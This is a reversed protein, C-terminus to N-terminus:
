NPLMCLEVLVDGHCYAPRCWCGLVKDKLEDLNLEGNTIKTTIYLRYKNISEERSLDKSIKFPNHWKSDTKPFREGNIFVIGKRGVYLNKDDEIWEKLNNYQPRIFAVKVNQVSSM